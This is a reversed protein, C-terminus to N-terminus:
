RPASRFQDRVAPTCLKWVIWGHLAAFVLAGALSTVLTVTRNFQMQAAFRQGEPSALMEAPFMDQLGDFFPGILALAAFNALAGGVLLLIFAMRAWERRRLLGWAAALFLGAVLLLVLSLAHRHELTWLVGRSLEPQAALRAVVADPLLLAFLMQALAWAVGLAALVLSIRALVTVFSAAAPLPPPTNM